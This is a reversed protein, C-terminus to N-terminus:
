LPRGLILAVSKEARSSAQSLFFQKEKFGKLWCQIYAANQEGTGVIGLESCLMASTLEAVLEEFAYEMEGKPNPKDISFRNLRSPHGCAHGLEHFLVSAFSESSVFHHAHPIKIADQRLSYYARQGGFKVSPGSEFDQLTKQAVGLVDPNDLPVVYEGDVGVGQCQDLNFLTFNQCVLKRDNRLEDETEPQIEKWLIVPTGKEGKMVCGGLSQAQKFTVWRHDRFDTSSLVVRNIGSYKRGGANSPCPVHWPKRWPLTEGSELAKIINQTVQALASAM